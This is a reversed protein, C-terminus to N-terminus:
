CVNFTYAIVPDVIEIFWLPESFPSPAMIPFRCLSILYLSIYMVVPNHFRTIMFADLDWQIPPLFRRLQSFDPKISAHTCAPTQKTSTIFWSRTRRGRRVWDQQGRGTYAPICRPSESNREKTTVSALRYCDAEDFVCVSSRAEWVLSRLYYRRCKITRGSRSYRLYVRLM